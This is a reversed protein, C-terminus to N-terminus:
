AALERAVIELQGKLDGLKEFTIFTLNSKAGHAAAVGMIRHRFEMEPDDQRFICVIDKGRQAGHTVEMWTGESNSAGPLVTLFDSTDLAILDLNTAQASTIGVTGMKERLFCSYSDIGVRDYISHVSRILKIYHDPLRGLESVLQSTMAGVVFTRKMSKQTELYARQLRYSIDTLFASPIYPYTVRMGFDVIGDRLDSRGILHSYNVNEIAMITSKKLM